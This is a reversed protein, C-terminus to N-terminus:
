DAGKKFQPDGDFPGSRLNTSFRGSSLLSSQELSTLPATLDATGRASDAQGIYRNRLGDSGLIEESLRNAFVEAPNISRAAAVESNALAQRVEYNVINLHANATENTSGGEQSSIGL